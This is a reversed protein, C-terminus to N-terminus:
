YNTKKYKMYNFLTLYFSHLSQLIAKLVSIIEWSCIKYHYYYYHTFWDFPYQSSLAASISSLFHLELFRFSSFTPRFRPIYLRRFSRLIHCIWLRTPQKFCVLRGYVCLRYSRTSFINWSRPKRCFFYLNNNVYM